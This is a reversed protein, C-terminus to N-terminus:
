EENFKREVLSVLERIATEADPGSARFHLRAGKLAKVRMIKVPSKADVWPGDVGLAVELKAAFRKATQTLKVSPRAHLGIENVLVASATSHTVGNEEQEAPAKDDPTM